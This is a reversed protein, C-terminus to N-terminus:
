NLKALNGYVNMFAWIYVYLDIYIYIFGYMYNIETKLVFSPRVVSLLETSCSKALRLIVSIYRKSHTVVLDVNRM